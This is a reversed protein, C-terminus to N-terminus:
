LYQFPKYNNQSLTSGKRLSIAGLFCNGGRFSFIHSIFRSVNIISFCHEELLFVRIEGSTLMNKEAALKAILRVDDKRLKTAAQYTTGEFSIKGEVM